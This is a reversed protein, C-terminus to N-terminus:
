PARSPTRADARPRLAPADGAPLLAQPDRVVYRRDRHALVGRAALAALTRNVTERTAGVMRGLEEQTLRSPLAVGDEADEGHAVALHQLRLSIRTPVDRTLAEELATTTDHLRSAVIRLLEEATAPLRRFLDRLVAPPIALVSAEDGVARAEVPSPGGGLLAIEGFVDGPGLLGVVAERGSPAVAALRVAGTVVLRLCDVEQGQGVIVEGHRYRRPAGAALVM